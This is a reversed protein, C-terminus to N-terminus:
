IMPASTKYTHNLSLKSSVGWKHALYGEIRLRLTEDLHGIIVIKECVYGSFGSHYYDSGGLSFGIPMPQPSVLSTRKLEGNIFLDTIRPDDSSLHIINTGSMDASYNLVYHIHGSRECWRSVSGNTISYGASFGDIYDSRNIQGSNNNWLCTGSLEEVCQTPVASPNHVVYFVSHGTESYVASSTLSSMAMLVANLGNVARKSYAPSTTQSSNVLEISNPGKDRWSRVGGKVVTITSSDAADLWFELSTDSPLWKRPASAGKVTVSLSATAEAWLDTATYSISTTVTEEEGIGVFDIDPEFLWSGDSAITFFGGMSGAVRSGVNIEDNNVKNVTLLIDDNDLVNGSIALIKNTEFGESCVTPTIVDITTPAANKYLHTEDLYEAHYWKHALYGEILARSTEDIADKIIIIEGIYGDFNSDCVVIGVNKVFQFASYSSEVTYGNLYGYSKKDQKQIFIANFWRSSNTNLVGFNGFDSGANVPADYVRMRGDSQVECTISWPSRVTYRQEVISGGGPNFPKTPQAVMAIIITNESEVEFPASIFFGSKNLFSVYGNELSPASTAGDNLYLNNNHGSKDRWEEIGVAGSTITSSDSADLWLIPSLLKPTWKQVENSSITVTINTFSEDHYDPTKVGYKISSQRTNTGRLFDFESNPNFTWTGDSLITFKGGGKGPQEVGINGVSGNVSSVYAYGLLGGGDNSFVNGTSVENALVGVEDRFLVVGLGPADYKFPHTLPLRSSIGWKHALYGEVRLRTSESVWDKQIVIECIEGFLGRGISLLALTVYLKPTYTAPNNSLVGNTWAKGITKSGNFYATVVYINTTGNAGLTCANRAYSGYWIGGEYFGLGKYQIIPNGWDFVFGSSNNRYVFYASFVENNIIPFNVASTLACSGGNFSISAIDDVVKLTPPNTASGKYVHRGRGSKDAWSTVVGGEVSVTSSDSADLWLQNYLEAPTWPKVKDAVINLSFASGFTGLPPEKTSVEFSVSRNVSGPIYFNNYNNGSTFVYSGNANLVFTAGNGLEIQVGVNEAVGNVSVVAGAANVGSVFINGYKNEGPYAFINVGYVTSREQVPEDVNGGLSAPMLAMSGPLGDICCNFGNVTFSSGPVSSNDALILKKNFIFM